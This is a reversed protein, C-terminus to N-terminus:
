ALLFYQVIVFICTRRTHFVIIFYASYKWVYLVIISVRYSYGYAQWHHGNQVSRVNVEAIVTVVVREYHFLDARDCSRSTQTNTILVEKSKLHYFVSSLTTYSLVLYYYFNISLAYSM